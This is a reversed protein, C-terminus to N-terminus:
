QKNSIWYRRALQREDITTREFVGGNSEIVKRSGWNTDRCTVLLRGLGIKKAEVIALALMTTAYGKRRQGPCIGYGIHGGSERVTPHDIHHRIQIAGFLTARDTDALFFLHAPVSAPGSATLDRQVISLFEDFDTGAFLRGPATPTEAQRWARVLDDYAARHKENPFELILM